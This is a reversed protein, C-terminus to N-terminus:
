KEKSEIYMKNLQEPNKTSQYQAYKLVAIREQNAYAEMARLVTTAYGDFFDMNKKTSWDDHRLDSENGLIEEKTM